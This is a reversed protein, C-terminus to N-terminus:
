LQNIERFVLLPPICDNQSLLLHLLTKALFCKLSPVSQLWFSELQRNPYCHTKSNLCLVSKAASKVCYLHCVFRSFVCPDLQSFQSKMERLSSCKCRWRNISILNCFSVSYPKDDSDSTTKTGASGQSRVFGMKQTAGQTANGVKSVSPFPCFRTQM